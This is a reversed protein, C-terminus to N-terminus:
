RWTQTSVAPIKHDIPTIWSRVVPPDAQGEKLFAEWDEQFYGPRVITVHPAADKLIEDSVYNLRLM